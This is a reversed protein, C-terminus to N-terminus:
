NAEDEEVYRPFVPQPKPLETGPVLAAEIDAFSRVDQAVALQDLLKSASAPVTSQVYIGLMRIVDALVYLVTAMRDPDTKRLAWPAQADVYRNADGVVKWVAELMRHIAQIEMATRMEDLAGKAAGILVDDDPTLAGPTPVKGDCNKAIMSLVRQGLNGLDNALDSNIRNVMSEKSFSGDNGYPVERMLFYRVQDLGFEDVMAQPTIVNGLSKSMKQGEINLFGHGFVRKPLPLGASMLFAPWYITHFRMIDKGIVHIDAPWFKKYTESSEDPFGTATIYNTLADLWVYMIHKDDGPVPIGWDFTTRSVSLDTLGQKVFNVVENRRYHPLIFDPNAEYHALLKDGYESLKFFYSEEEVWEVEAGSPAFLKGKQDGEGKTLEDEGFYAEDRVSYWGAYKGLYIDGKAQIRRWIEQVSDHHRPETTRIFDDNSINLLDTMAKFKSAIDDCFEKPDVGNKQATKEVKQGHEDTGTLFMVDYGDLRKFRAIVDTSISEYAHGLHPPGNVYSIATTIYFTNKKTESPM